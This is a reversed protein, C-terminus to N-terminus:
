KYKKPASRSIASRLLVLNRPVRYIWFDQFLSKFDLLKGKRAM